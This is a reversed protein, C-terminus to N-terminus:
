AADRGHQLIYRHRLGEAEFYALRKPLCCLITAMDFGVVQDLAEGLEIERGDLERLESIAYCVAGAGRARLLEAIRNSTQDPSPIEIICSPVFDFRHLLGDLLKKRRKPDGAFGLYRARKEPLVFAAILEREHNMVNSIPKHFRAPSNSYLIQVPPPLM